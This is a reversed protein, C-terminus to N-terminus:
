PRGIRVTGSVAQVTVHVSGDGVSLRYQRGGGFHQAGLLRAERDTVLEGSVTTVEYTAGVDDPLTVDVDGSATQFELTADRAPRGRFSIDGSSASFFGDSVGDGTVLVDGSASRVSVDGMAGRVTVDGAVTSIRLDAPSGDVTVAGSLGEIDLRRPAGEVRLDGESSELEVEGTLDRVVVDGTRTRVHLGTEAPVRIRLDGDADRTRIVVRSGEGEVRVQRLVGPEGRVVLRGQRGASFTLDADGSSVSVAVDGGVKRVLSDVEQARAGTAGAAAVALAVLAGRVAGSRGWRGEIM